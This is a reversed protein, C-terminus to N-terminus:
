LKVNRPLNHDHLYFPPFGVDKNVPIRSIIILPEVIQDFQVDM